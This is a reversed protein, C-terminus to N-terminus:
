GRKVYVDRADTPDLSLVAVADYNGLYCVGGFYLFYSCSQGSRIMYECVFGCRILSVETETHFIHERWSGTAEVVLFLSHLLSM